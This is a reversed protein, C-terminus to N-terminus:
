TIGAPLPLTVRLGACGAPPYSAPVTLPVYFVLQDVLYPTSYTVEVVGDTGAPLSEVGTLDETHLLIGDRYFDVAGMEIDPDWGTDPSFLSRVELSNVYYDVVDFTIENREARAYSDVEDHEKTGTDSNSVGLGRTLRHSLAFSDYPSIYGAVTAMGSLLSYSSSIEVVGDGTSWNPPEYPPVVGAITDVFSISTPSAEALTGLVLILAVGIVITVLKRM